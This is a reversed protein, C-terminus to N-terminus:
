KRTFINIIWSCVLTYIFYATPKSNAQYYFDALLELESIREKKDRISMASSAEEYELESARSQSKIYKSQWDTTDQVQGELATIITHLPNDEVVAYNLEMKYTYSLDSMDCDYVSVLKAYKFRRELEKEIESPFERTYEDGIRVFKTLTKVKLNFVRPEQRAKNDWSGDFVKNFDQEYYSIRDSETNVVEYGGDKKFLYVEKEDKM